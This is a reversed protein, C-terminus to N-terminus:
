RARKRSRRTPAEAAANPLSAPDRMAALRARADELKPTGQYDKELRSVTREYIRVMGELIDPDPPAITGNQVLERRWLAFGVKDFKPVWQHGLRKYTTWIDPYKTGTVTKVSQRYSKGNPAAELPIFEDGWQVAIVEALKTDITKGRAKVGNVGAKLAFHKLRPLWEFRRGERQDEPTGLADHDVLEWGLPNSAYAWRYSPADIRPLEDAEVHGTDLNAGLAQM